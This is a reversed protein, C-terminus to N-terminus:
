EKNLIERIEEITLTTDAKERWKAVITDKQKKLEEKIHAAEPGQYMKGDLRNRQEMSLDSPLTPIKKQKDSEFASQATSFKSSPETSISASRIPFTKDTKFTKLPISKSTDFPSKLDTASTKGGKFLMTSADSYKAGDTFSTTKPTETKPTKLEIIQPASSKETKKDQASIPIM